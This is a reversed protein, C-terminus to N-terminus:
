HLLEQKADERLTDRESDTLTETRDRILEYVENDSMADGANPGWNASDMHSLFFEIAKVNFRGHDDPETAARFLANEVAKRPKARAHDVSHRFKADRDIRDRIGSYSIGASQAAAKITCGERLAGLFARMQGVHYKRLDHKRKAV